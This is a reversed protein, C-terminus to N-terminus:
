IHFTTHVVRVCLLFDAGKKTKPKETSPSAQSTNLESSSANKSTDASSSTEKPRQDKQKRATVSSSAKEKNKAGEHLIYKVRM